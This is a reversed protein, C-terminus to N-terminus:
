SNSDKYIPMPEECEEIYKDDLRQDPKYLVSAVMCEGMLLATAM